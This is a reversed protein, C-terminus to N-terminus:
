PSPSPSAQPSTQPSPPTPSADPSPSPSSSGQNSEGTTPKDSQKNTDEGQSADPSPSPTVQESEEATPKDLQKESDSKSDEKTEQWESLPRNVGNEFDLPVLLVKAQEQPKAPPDVQAYLFSGNFDQKGLILQHAKQDKLKVDVTAQPQTLGYESLQTPSVTLTRESKSDVLLNVLFAVAPDSAVTDKPTKMQWQSISSKNREREPIREFTLTQDPKKITLAQIADKEFSFIKKQNTNTAERVAGGEVEYFYVVGGLTLALLILIWTTRQLKM